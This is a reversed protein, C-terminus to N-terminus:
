AALALQTASANRRSSREPVDEPPYGLAVLWDTPVTTMGSLQLPSSGAHIGRTFVRHNHWVALLALQGSSLSRHAALHPRVISHWNEVASSARVAAEWAEILVRAAARWAEPLLALLQELQPGLLVRRQWAWAVVAVGQQGVVVGMDAQVEDLRTVFAVAGPLAEALHKHLRRVEQRQGSGAAEGLEALLVLLADLQSRRARGDLVGDRTVVVVELLERLVHTLYRVGDAIQLAQAVTAAHAAPDTTPNPGRPRQGAAVRAAQRAVTATQERLTAVRRDLRGQVQACVHFIHWVDRGHPGAPDVRQCAAQVAAGADSITAHWRLGREQALWLLLTWSESDVPLPGEAAWVAWSVTDVVNLYAGRRNNGYIEDLALTRSSAPAQSAMWSLARREAEAIVATITGLSVEQQTLHRLCTQIGRYSPHSEVLLTLIQRELTPTVVTTPSTSVFARELARRGQETWTYLTQRSVGTQRSLDTVFGYHGRHALMQSVWQAREQPTSPHSQVM